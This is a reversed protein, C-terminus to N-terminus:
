INMFILYFGSIAPALGANSERSVNDLIPNMPDAIAPNRTPKPVLSPFPHVLPWPTHPNGLNETLDITATALKM